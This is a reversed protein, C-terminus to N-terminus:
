TVSSEFYDLFIIGLFNLLPFQGVFSTSKEFSYCFASFLTRLLGM